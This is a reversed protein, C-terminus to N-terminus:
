GRVAAVHLTADRDLAILRTGAPDLAVARAGPVPLAATAGARLVVVEDGRAWAVVPAAAAAALVLASGEGAERPPAGGRALWVTGDSATAALLRGGDGLAVVGIGWAELEHAEGAWWICARGHLAAAMVGDEVAVSPAGPAGGSWLQGLATGARGDLLTLWADPGPRPEGGGDPPLARQAAVLLAHGAGDWAAASIELPGAGPAVGPVPDPPAAWARAPLELRQTGALLADGAATFRLGGDLPVTAAIPEGSDLVVLRREAAAWRGDAACAVRDGRVGPVTEVLEVLLGAV